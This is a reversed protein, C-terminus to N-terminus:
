GKNNALPEFVSSDMNLLAELVKEEGEKTIKKEHYFNYDTMACGVAIGTDYSVTFGTFRGKSTEFVEFFYGINTFSRIDIKTLITWNSTTKPSDDTDSMIEGMCDELEQILDTDKLILLADRQFNNEYDIM